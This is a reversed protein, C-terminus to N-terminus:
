NLCLEQEAHRTVAAETVSYHNGEPLLSWDQPVLWVCVQVRREHVLSQSNYIYLLFFVNCKILNPKHFVEFFPFIVM